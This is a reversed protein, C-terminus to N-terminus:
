DASLKVLATPPTKNSSDVDWTLVAMGSPSQKPGEDTNNALIVGDTVITFRGEMAPPAPVDANDEGANGLAALGALSPMGGMMSAMPNSEGQTAFGPANIRVTEDDRLIVQVFMNATPFGELVPFMMDHSLEGNIAFAVDFVGDGKSEVKEWGRHRLLLASLEEAAEPDSPDIGGMLQAMERAKRGAKEARQDSRADWDERQQALEDQSCERVDFDDDYCDEAEFTDETKAGIQALKSLGFFFIEGEYSFAFDGDKELELQSSFAGPTVFCSTLMLSAGTLVAAARFRRLPRIIM